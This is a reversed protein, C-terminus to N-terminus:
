HGEIAAFRNFLLSLGNVCLLLSLPFLSIGGSTHVYFDLCLGLVRVRLSLCSPLPLSERTEEM